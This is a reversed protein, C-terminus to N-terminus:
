DDHYASFPSNSFFAIRPFLRILTSLEAIITEYSSSGIQGGYTVVLSNLTGLTAQRLARNAQQLPAIFFNVNLNLNSTRMLTSSKELCCVCYTCYIEVKRLFATLESVVPDLVCKLDIRLPSSAIV